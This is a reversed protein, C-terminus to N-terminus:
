CGTDRADSPMFAKTEEVDLQRQWMGSMTGKLDVYWVANVSDASLEELM